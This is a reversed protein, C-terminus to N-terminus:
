NLKSKDTKYIDKLILKLQQLLALWNGTEVDIGWSGPLIRELRIMSFVAKKVFCLNAKELLESSSLIYNMEKMWIKYACCDNYSKLYENMVEADEVLGADFLSKIFSYFQPTYEFSHDNHYIIYDEEKIDEFMPLFSLVSCYNGIDGEYNNQRQLLIQVQKSLSEM